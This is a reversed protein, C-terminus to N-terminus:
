GDSEETHTCDVNLLRPKSVVLERKRRPRATCPCGHEAISVDGHAAQLPGVRERAAPTASLERSVGWRDSKQGTEPEVRKPTNM